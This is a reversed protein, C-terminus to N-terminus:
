VTKIRKYARLESYEHTKIRKDWDNATSMLEAIRRPVDRCDNGFLTPSRPFDTKNGVGSYIGVVKAM